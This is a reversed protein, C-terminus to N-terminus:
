CSLDRVDNLEIFDSTNKKILDRLEKYLSITGKAIIFDDLINLKIKTAEYDKLEILLFLEPNVDSDQHIHIFCDSIMPHTKVAQEVLILPLKTGWFWFYPNAFTKFNLTHVRGQYM